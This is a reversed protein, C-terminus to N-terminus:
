TVIGNLIARHRVFVCEVGSGFRVPQNKQLAEDVLAVRAVYMDDHVANEVMGVRNRGIAAKWIIPEVLLRGIRWVDAVERLGRKETVEIVGVPAREFVDPICTDIPDVYELDVANAQVIRESEELWVVPAVAQRFEKGFQAPM